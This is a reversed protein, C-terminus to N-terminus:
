PGQILQPGPDPGDGRLRRDGCRREGGRGRAALLVRLVHRHGRAPVSSSDDLSYNSTPNTLYYFGLSRGSTHCPKHRLQDTRDAMTLGIPDAQAPTLGSGPGLGVAQGTPNTVELRAMLYGARRELGAVKATLGADALDRTVTLPELTPPPGPETSGTRIEVRRNLARGDPDDSGDPKTNPAM